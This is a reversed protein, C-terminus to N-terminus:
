RSKEMREHRLYSAFSMQAIESARVVWTKPSAVLTGIAVNDVSDLPAIGAFWTYLTTRDEPDSLTGTKGGIDYRDNKTGSRRFYKRSTGSVVTDRMMRQLSQATRESFLRSLKQPTGIYVQLGKEDYAADVIYPAMIYGGNGSAAAMVAAHVPSLKTAGFGAGAEGVEQATANELSPVVAASTEIRFDSPLPQNFHYGESYKKLTALGTAYLALRAFATNCSVSFAKALTMNQSDKAPDRLWNNRRLHSCGGHFVIREDPSMGLKEIAATATVIKMLSAAPARASTVIPEDGAPNLPNGIAGKRESMALIRGTSSELVVVAGAIKKQTQLVKTMSDQLSPNVTLKLNLKGRKIWLAGDKLQWEKSVEGWKLQGFPTIFAQTENFTERRPDVVGSKEFDSFDGFGKGVAGVDADAGNDLFHSNSKELAEEDVDQLLADDAATEGVSNANAYINPKFVSESRKAAGSLIPVLLALCLYEKKPLCSM